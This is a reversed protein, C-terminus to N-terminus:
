STRPYLPLFLLSAHTQDDKGPARVVRLRQNQRGITILEVGTGCQRQRLPLVGSMDIRAAVQFCAARPQTYACVSAEGGQGIDTIRALWQATTRAPLQNSM